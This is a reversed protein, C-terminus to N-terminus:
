TQLQNRSCIYFAYKFQALTKKFFVFFFYKKQATHNILSM